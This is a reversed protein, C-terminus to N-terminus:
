STRGSALTEDARPSPRYSWSTVVAETGVRSSAYPGVVVGIFSEAELVALARTPVTGLMRAVGDSRFSCTYEAATASVVLEVPGAGAPGAGVVRRGDPGTVVLEVVREGRSRTIGLVVHREESLRLAVGAVDDDAVPEFAVAASLEVDLHQQRRCVFATPETDDLTAPLGHLVLGREDVSWRRDAPARLGFWEPGVGPPTHPAPTGDAVPRPLGPARMQPEVTPDTVPWGDVWRVPALFTERGLHHARDFARIGLLVMFWAGDPTDVLDAHGIAQFPHDPLHRHTLLPNGPFAEFPGWPSRSRAVTLSHDYSTGGESILLVYWEGVRYLHPGEPWIGGTGRWIERPPGDLTGTALDIVAQFVGGHRGEGHRTYYVTGDADEMLSPDMSWEDDIDIPPSWPGAPDDATVLFSRGEPMMTTVMVFRGGIHRLTPAFLGQSSAVHRLGPHDPVAHGITTWRVLDRSHLIPIGPVFEFTSAALYYDGGVRCVSPDPYCGPVVPNRWGTPDARHGTM